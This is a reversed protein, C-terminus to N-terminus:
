NHEEEYEVEIDLDKDVERSAWSKKTLCYDLRNVFHIGNVLVLRGSDGDMRTWIHRNALIENGGALEKARDLLATYGRIYGSSDHTEYFIESGEKDQIPDYKKEWEECTIQRTNSM